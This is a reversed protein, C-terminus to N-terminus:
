QMYEEFTCDPLPYRKFYYDANFVRIFTHTQGQAASLWLRHHGNLVYLSRRYRVAYPFLVLLDRYAYSSYTIDREHNELIRLLRSPRLGDQTPSLADMCLLKISRKYGALRYSLPPAHNGRRLPLWHEDWLDIYQRLAANFSTSSGRRPLVLYDRSNICERLYTCLEDKSVGCPHHSTLLGM